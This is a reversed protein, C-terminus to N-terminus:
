SRNEIGSAAELVCALNVASVFLYENPATVAETRKIFEVIFLHSPSLLQELM